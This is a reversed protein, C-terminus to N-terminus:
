TLHASRELSSRSDAEIAFKASPLRDTPPHPVCSRKRLKRGNGFGLERVLRSLDEALMLAQIKLARFQHCVAYIESSVFKEPGSLWFFTPEAALWAM